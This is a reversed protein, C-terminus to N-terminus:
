ITSVLSDWRMNIMYIKRLTMEDILLFVFSHYKPSSHLLAAKHLQLDVDASFDAGTKVAHSYDQSTSQSPLSICGSDKLTAYAKRSQYHLYDGDYDCIGNFEMRRQERNIAEKQQNCFIQFTDKKYMNRIFSNEKDMITSMDM